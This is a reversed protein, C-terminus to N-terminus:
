GNISRGSWLYIEESICFMSGIVRFLFKDNIKIVENRVLLDSDKRVIESVFKNKSRGGDHVWANRIRGVISSLFEYDARYARQSRHEFGLRDIENLYHAVTSTGNKKRRLKQKKGSALSQAVLCTGSEFKSWLTILMAQNQYIPMVVTFTARLDVNHEFVGAIHRAPLKEIEDKNERGAIITEVGEEKIYKELNESYDRIQEQQQEVFARMLVLSEYLAGAEAKLRSVHHM